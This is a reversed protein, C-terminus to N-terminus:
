RDKATDAEGKKGKPTKEGKKEEPVKKLESGSKPAAPRASM